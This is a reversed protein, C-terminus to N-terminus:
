KKFTFEFVGWGNNSAYGIRFNITYLQKCIDYSGSVAEFYLNLAAPLGWDSCDPSVVTRPGSLSLVSKGPGFPEIILPIKNENWTVGESPIGLIYVKFPDDPDAELKLIGAEDWEDESSFYNFTGVLMSVDFDCLDYRNMNVTMKKAYDIAENSELNIVASLVPKTLNNIIVTLKVSGSFQGAPITVTKSSLTFHTGEKATSTPAISLNYTRAQDSKVTSSVVIDRSHAKVDELETSITITSGVFHVFALGKGGNTDFDMKETECTTLGFLLVFSSILLFIKKM